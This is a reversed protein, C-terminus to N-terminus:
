QKFGDLNIEMIKLDGSRWLHQGRVNSDYIHRIVRANNRDNLALNYHGGNLGSM